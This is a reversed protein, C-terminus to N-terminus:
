WGLAETNHRWKQFEELDVNEKNPGYFRHSVTSNIEVQESIIEVKLFCFHVRGKNRGGRSALAEAGLGYSQLITEKGACRLPGSNRYEAMDETFTVPEAWLLCEAFSTEKKMYVLNVNQVLFSFHFHFFPTSLHGMYRELHFLEFYKFIHCVFLSMFVFETHKGKIYFM